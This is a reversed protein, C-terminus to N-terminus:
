FRYSLSMSICPYFSLKNAEDKFKADEIAADNALTANNTPNSISTSATPKGLMAGFDMGFSVKGGSMTNGFGLGVYPMVKQYKIEGTATGIQAATYTNGNVTYSTGATPQATATVKTGNYIGGASLRLGSTFPYFDILVGANKIKAIGDYTMSASGYSGEKSYNYGAALMRVNFKESIQTTGEIGLGLTGGTLGIAFDQAMASSAAITLALLASGVIKKM